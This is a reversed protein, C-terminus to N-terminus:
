GERVCKACLVVGYDLDHHYDTTQELHIPVSCAECQEWNDGDLDSCLLDPVCDGLQTLTLQVVARIEPASVGRLASLEQLNRSIIETLLM